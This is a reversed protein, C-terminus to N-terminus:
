DPYDKGKDTGIEDVEDDNSGGSAEDYNRSDSVIVTETWIAKAM